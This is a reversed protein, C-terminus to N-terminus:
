WSWLLSQSISYWRYVIVIIIIIIIFKYLSVQDLVWNDVYLQLMIMTGSIMVSLVGHEMLACKLEEKMLM